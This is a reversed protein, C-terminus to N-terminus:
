GRPRLIEMLKDVTQRSSEKFIIRNENESVGGSLIFRIREFAPLSNDVKLFNLADEDININVVLTPSGKLGVEEEDLGIDDLGLIRVKGKGTIGAAARIENNTKKFTFVAPLQVDVIQFSTELDIKVRMTNNEVKVIEVVYTEQPIHFFEGLSPGIHGTSSDITEQGCFINKYGARSIFAYLVKATILTDSGALRRDSLLFVEDAGKELCYILIDEAQGPGMTVVGVKAGYKEKCELAADLAYEDAPNLIAAAGERILTHTEPDLKINMTGPVQKVCVIIDDM